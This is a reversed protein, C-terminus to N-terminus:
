ALLLAPRGYAAFASLSMPPYSLVAGALLVVGASIACLVPIWATLQLGSSPLPLRLACWVALGPLTLWLLLSALLAIAGPIAGLVMAASELYTRHSYWLYSLQDSQDATRVSVSIPGNSDLPRDLRLMLGIGQPVDSVPLYATVDGHFDARGSAIVSDDDRNLL